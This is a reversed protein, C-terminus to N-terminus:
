IDGTFTDMLYAEYDPNPSRQLVHRMWAIRERNIIELEWICPSLGTGSIKTFTTPSDPVTLFIHTNLMNTGVWWNVISFIGITGAHVILFAMHAHSDDFQNKMELWVPLQQIAQQYLEPHEFEASKTITYMKVYWEGVRIVEEFVIKRSKYLDMNARKYLNM